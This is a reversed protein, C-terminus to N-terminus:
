GTPHFKMNEFAKFSQTLKRQTNATKKVLLFAELLAKASLKLFYKLLTM